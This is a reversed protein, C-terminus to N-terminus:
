RHTPPLRQLFAKKKSQPQIGAYVKFGHPFLKPFRDVLKPLYDVLQYCIAEQNTALFIQSQRVM